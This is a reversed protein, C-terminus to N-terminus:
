WKHTSRGMRKSCWSGRTMRMRMRAEGVIRVEREQVALNLPFGISLDAGLVSARVTFGNVECGTLKFSRLCCDLKLKSFFAFPNRICNGIEQAITTMAHPPSTVLSTMHRDYNLTWVQLCILNCM